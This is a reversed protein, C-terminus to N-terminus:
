AITFTKNSTKEDETQEKTNRSEHVLNQAARITHLHKKLSKRSQNSEETNTNSTNLTNPTNLLTNSHKAFYLFCMSLCHMVFMFISVVDVIIQTPTEYITQQMMSLKFTGVFLSFISFSMFFLYILEEKYFLWCIGLLPLMNQGGFNDPKLFLPINLVLQTFLTLFSVQDQHSMQQILRISEFHTNKFLLMCIDCIHFMCCIFAAGFSSEFEVMSNDFHRPVSNAYCLLVIYLFINLIGSIYIEPVFEMFYFLKKYFIGTIRMINHICFSFYYLILCVKTNYSTKQLTCAWDNGNQCLTNYEIVANETETHSLGCFLLSNDYVGLLWSSQLLCSPFFVLILAKFIYQFSIYFDSYSSSSSSEINPNLM